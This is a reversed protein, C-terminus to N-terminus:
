NMRKDTETVRGDWIIPRDDIVRVCMCKAMRYVEEDDLMESPMADARADADAFENCYRRRWPSLKQASSFEHRPHFCCHYACFLERSQAFEISHIAMDGWGVTRVVAPQAVCPQAVSVPQTLLPPLRRMRAPLKAEITRLLRRDHETRGSRKGELEQRLTYLSHPVEYGPRRFGLRSHAAHPLLDGPELGLEAARGEAAKMAAARQSALDQEVAPQMREPQVVAPQVVGPQAVGSQAVGMSCALQAVGPAASAAAEAPVATTAAMDAADAGTRQRVLERVRLALEAVRVHAGQPVGAVRRCAERSELQADRAMLIAARVHSKKPAPGRAPKLGPGLLAALADDDMTLPSDDM